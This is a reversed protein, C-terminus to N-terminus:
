SCKNVYLKRRRTYLQYLQANTATSEPYELHFLRAFDKTYKLNKDNEISQGIRVIANIQENSYTQRM